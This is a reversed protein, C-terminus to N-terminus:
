KPDDQGLLPEKLPNNISGMEVDGEKPKGEEGEEEDSEEGPHKPPELKLNELEAIRASRKNEGEAAELAESMYALRELLSPHEMNLMDDIPSVFLLDLSKAHSRIMAEKFVEGYGREVTYLDSRREMHRVILRLGTRMPLDVSTKWFWTFLFFSAFYSPQFFGFSSLFAQHNTVLQLLTGFIVMYITDVLTQKM